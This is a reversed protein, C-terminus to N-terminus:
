YLLLATYHELDHRLEFVDARNEFDSVSESSKSTIDDRLIRETERVALYPVILSAPRLVEVIRIKGKSSKTM